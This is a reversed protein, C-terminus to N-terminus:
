HDFLAISPYSIILLPLLTYQVIFSNLMIVHQISAISKHVIPMSKIFFLVDSM